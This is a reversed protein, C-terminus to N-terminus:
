FCSTRSVVFTASLGPAVELSSAASYAKAFDIPSQTFLDVETAQHEPSYLSFVALGKERIWEERKEADIFQNLAVPARPRYGLSGLADLATRLNEEELDVFLDLDATFRVYGYAVVALGGVILYRVRAERLARVITEISRQEVATAGIQDSDSKRWLIGGPYFFPLRGHLCCLMETIM